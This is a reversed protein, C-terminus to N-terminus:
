RPRLEILNDQPDFGHFKIQSEIAYQDSPFTGQEIIIKNRTKNPQYFSVMLLHINVTLANMVVVESPRAGVLRATNEILREHFNHWRSHQGLLGEREWVYLEKEVYKRVSKPQIGLSNGSFYIINEKTENKPYHFKERYSGLPDDQDLTKAFSRSNEFTM